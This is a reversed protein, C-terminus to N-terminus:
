DCTYLRHRSHAPMTSTGAIVTPLPRVLGPVRMVQPRSLETHQIGLSLVLQQCSAAQLLFPKSHSLTLHHVTWRLLPPM